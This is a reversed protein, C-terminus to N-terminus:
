KLSNIIEELTLNLYPNIDEITIDWKKGTKQVAWETISLSNRYQDLMAGFIVNLIVKRKSIDDFTDIKRISRDVSYDEDNTEFIENLSLDRSEEQTLLRFRYPNLWRNLGEVKFKTEKYKTGSGYKREVTNVDSIKYKKGSILFKSDHRCTVIDGKKLSEPNKIYGTNWNQNKISPDEWDIQPLPTTGDIQTFNKVTYTGLGRISIRARSGANKNWLRVVEYTAGKVLKTTNTKCIVRM